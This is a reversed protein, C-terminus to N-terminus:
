PTQTLVVERTWPAPVYGETQADWKTPRWDLLYAGGAYHVLARTFERPTNPHFVGVESQLQTPSFIPFADIELPKLTGAHEATKHRNLQSGRIRRTGFRESADVAGRGAVHQSYIKIQFLDSLTDAGDGFNERLQWVSQLAIIVVLGLERGVSLSAALGEVKGIKYFEDLALTVRLGSGRFAPSTARACIRKLMGGCVSTSLAKFDPNTQVVLVGPGQWQASLWRKISFPRAPPHHSWAYAMPRLTTLAGSLLTSMVGEVTKSVDVAGDPGLLPSASLDLRGIRERIELPAASLHSLLTRAGWEQGHEAVVLLIVDTMVLRATDSWFPQTSPPIVDCAFEGAAAPGDIDAGLDWAWGDQHTPSILVIDERRFAGTVDGKACHLVLRDGRDLASQCLARCINSKGSGAGGLIMINRTELSRPMPLHPALWLGREARPGAQLAFRELLKTRALEDRYLKPDADDIQLFPETLPAGSWAHQYTWLGATFGIGLALELRLYIAQRIVSYNLQEWVEHPWLAPFGTASPDHIPAVVALLAFAAAGVLGWTRVGLWVASGPHPRPNLGVNLRYFPNM